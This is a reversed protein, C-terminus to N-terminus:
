LTRDHGNVRHASLRRNGLRDDGLAPVIKQRDLIVLRLQVLRYLLVKGNGFSFCKGMQLGIYALGQVLSM